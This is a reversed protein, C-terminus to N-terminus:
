CGELRVIKIVKNAWENCYTARFLPYLPSHPHTSNHTHLLLYLQTYLPPFYVLHTHSLFRDYRSKNILLHTKPDTFTHTPTHTPAHTHTHKHPHRQTTTCIQPWNPTSLTHLDIKLIPLAIPSGQCTIMM